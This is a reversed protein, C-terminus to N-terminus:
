KRGAWAELLARIAAPGAVLALAAVLIPFRAGGELTEHLLMFIGVGVLLVDRALAWLGHGNM